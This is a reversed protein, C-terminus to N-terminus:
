PGKLLIERAYAITDPNPQQNHSPDRPPYDRSPGDKKAKAGFKTELEKWPCKTGKELSSHLIWM